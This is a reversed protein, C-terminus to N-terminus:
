PLFFFGLSFSFYRNLKVIWVGKEVLKSCFCSIRQPSSGISTPEYSKRQQESGYCTLLEHINTQEWTAGTLDSAMIGMGYTPFKLSQKLHVSTFALTPVSGPIKSYRDVVRVVLGDNREKNKPVKYVGKQTLSRQCHGTNYYFVKYHVLYNISYLVHTHTETLLQVLASIHLCIDHIFYTIVCKLKSITQFEIWETM